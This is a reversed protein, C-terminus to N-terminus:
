IIDPKDKNELEDLVNARMTPGALISLLQIPLGAGRTLGSRLLKLVDVGAKGAKMARRAQAANKMLEAAQASRKIPEAGRAKENAERDKFDKKRQRVKDDEKAEEIDYEERLEKIEEELQATNADFNEEGTEQDVYDKYGSYRGQGGAGMNDWTNEIREGRRRRDMLQGERERILKGLEKLGNSM